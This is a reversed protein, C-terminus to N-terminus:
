LTLLERFEIFLPWHSAELVAETPEHEHHARTVGQHSTWNTARPLAAPGPVNYGPFTTGGGSAATLARDKRFSNRGPCM